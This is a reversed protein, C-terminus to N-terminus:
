SLVGTVHRGFVSLTSCGSPTSDANARADCYTQGCQQSIHEASPPKGWQACVDCKQSEWVIFYRERAEVLKSVVFARILRTTIDSQRWGAKSIGTEFQKLFAFPTTRIVFSPCPNIGVCLVKVESTDAAILM